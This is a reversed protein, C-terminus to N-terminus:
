ASRPRPATSSTIIIDRVGLAVSCNSDTFKFVREEGDLTKEAVRNLGVFIETGVEAILRKAEVNHLAKVADCGGDNTVSAALDGIVPLSHFMKEGHSQKEECLSLNYRLEDYLSRNVVTGNPIAIVTAWNFRTLTTYGYSLGSAAVCLVFFGM